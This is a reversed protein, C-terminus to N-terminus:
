QNLAKMLEPLVVNSPGQKFLEAKDNYVMLYPLDRIKHHKALESEWNVLDLKYIDVRDGYVKKVDVLSRELDKCPACWDAYVDFVTIRGEKIHPKLDIVKGQTLVPFSIKEGSTAHEKGSPACCMLLLLGSLFLYRM